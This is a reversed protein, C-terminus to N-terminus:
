LVICLVSTDLKLIHNPVTVSIKIILYVSILLVLQSVFFSLTLFLTILDLLHVLIVSGLLSSANL